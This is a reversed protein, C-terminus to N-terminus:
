KWLSQKQTLFFYIYFNNKEEMMKAWEELSVHEKLDAAKSMAQHPISTHGADQGAVAPWGPWDGSETTCILIDRHSLSRAAISSELKAPLGHKTSVGCWLHPSPVSQGSAGGNELQHLWVLCMLEKHKHEKHRSTERRTSQGKVLADSTKTRVFSSARMHCAPMSTKLLEGLTQVERGYATCVKGSQNAIILSALAQLQILLHYRHDSTGNCVVIKKLVYSFFLKIVKILSSPKTHYVQKWLSKNEHPKKEKCLM